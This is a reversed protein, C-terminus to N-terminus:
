DKKEAGKTICVVRHDWPALRFQLRDLAPDNATRRAEYLRMRARHADNATLELGYPSGLAEYLLGILFNQEQQKVSLKKGVLKPM